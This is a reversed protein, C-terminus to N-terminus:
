GNREDMEEDSFPARPLKIEVRTGVGLESEVSVVGGFQLAFNEVMFLGLGTGNTKTTFHADFIRALTDKPMGRGNDECVICVEQECVVVSLEIEGVDIMADQSNNVLNLLCNQLEWDDVYVWVAAQPVDAKIIVGKKLLTDFVGVWAKVIEGVDRISSDHIRRQSFNLIDIAKASGKALADMASETYKDKSQADDSGLALELLGHVVTARNNLDHVGGSLLKGLEELKQSHILAERLRREESVDTFTACIGGQALPFREIRLSRGNPPTLIESTVFEDGGVTISRVHNDFLEDPDGPGFSGNNALDRYYDLLNAGQYLLEPPVLGMETYKRNWAVLCYDADYFTIGQEITAFTVDLFAQLQEASSRVDDM